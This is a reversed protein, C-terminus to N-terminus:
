AKLRRGKAMLWVDKPKGAEWSLLRTLRSGQVKINLGVYGFHINLFLYHVIHQLLYLFAEFFISYIIASM